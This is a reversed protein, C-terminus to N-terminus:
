ISRTSRPSKRTPHGGTPGALHYHRPHVHRTCGTACVPRGGAKPYAPLREFEESSRCTNKVVYSHPIEPTTRAFRWDHGEIFSTIEDPTMDPLRRRGSWSVGPIPAPMVRGTRACTSTRCISGPISSGSCQRPWCSSGRDLATVRVCTAATWGCLGSIVEGIAGARRLADTFSHRFSHFSIKPARAGANGLYRGFWKQYRDSYYGRRDVQLEAFLRSARRERM